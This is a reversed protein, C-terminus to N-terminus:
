LLCLLSVLLDTIITTLFQLLLNQPGPVYINCIALLTYWGHYVDAKLPMSFLQQCNLMENRLLM